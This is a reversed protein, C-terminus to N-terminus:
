SKWLIWSSKLIINTPKVCSCVINKLWQSSQIGIWVIKKESEIDPEIERNTHSETSAPVLMVYAPVIDFRRYWLSSKTIKDISANLYTKNETQQFIGNWAAPVHIASLM